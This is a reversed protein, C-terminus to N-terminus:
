SGCTFNFLSFAVESVVPSTFPNGTSLSVKVVNQHEDCLPGATSHDNTM